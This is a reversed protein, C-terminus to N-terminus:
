AGDEGLLSSCLEIDLPPRALSTIEGKGFWRVEEGELAVPDGSWRSCTYLLIVIEAKGDDTSGEAFTEPVLDDQAIAIGLEEKTERILANVPTEGSEVKGGPFEWLGGHPRGLPRRHMLWRGRSDELRLAVVLLM